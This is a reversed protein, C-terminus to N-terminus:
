IVPTEFHWRCQEYIICSLYLFSSGVLVLFAQTCVKEYPMAAASLDKLSVGFELRQSLFLGVAGVVSFLAIRRNFSKDPYELFGSDNSSVL